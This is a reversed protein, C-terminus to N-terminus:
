PICRHIFCFGLDRPKPIVAREPRTLIDIAFVGLLLDRDKFECELSSHTQQISTLRTDNVKPVFVLLLRNQWRYSELPNNQAMAPIYSLSVGITGLSVMLALLKKYM